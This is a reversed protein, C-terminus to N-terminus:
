RRLLEQLTCRRSQLFKSATGLSCWARIKDPWDTSVLMVQIMKLDIQRMRSLDSQSSAFDNVYPCVVAKDPVEAKLEPPSKVIM